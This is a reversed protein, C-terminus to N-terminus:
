NVLLFLRIKIGKYTLNKYSDVFDESVIDKYLGNELLLHENIKADSVTGMMFVLRMDRFMSRRAWTERLSLRRKFNGPASHVYVLLFISDSGCIRHEPNLGYVFDHKNVIKNQLLELDDDVELKITSTPLAQEDTSIRFVEIALLVIATVIIQKCSVIM